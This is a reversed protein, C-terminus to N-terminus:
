CACHARLRFDTDAESQNTRSATHLSISEAQNERSKGQYKAFDPVKSTSIAGFAASNLWVGSFDPTRLVPFDGRFL